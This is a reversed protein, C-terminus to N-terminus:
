CHPMTMGRNLYEWHAGMNKATFGFDTCHGLLIRYLRSGRTPNGKENCRASSEEQSVRGQWGPRKSNKLAGPMSGDPDRCQNHGGGPISGRWIDRCSMEESSGCSQEFAVQEIVAIRIGKNFIVLQVNGM